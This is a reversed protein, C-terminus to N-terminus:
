TRRSARRAAVSINGVIVGSSKAPDGISSSYRRPREFGPSKGLEDLLQDVEIRRREVPRVLNAPDGGGRQDDDAIRIDHPQFVGDLQETQEAAHHAVECSHRRRLQRHQRARRVEHRRSASHEVAQSAAPSSRRTGRDPARQSSVLADPAPAPRPRDAPTSSSASTSPCPSSSRSIARRPHVAHRGLRPRALPPPAADRSCSTLVSTAHM